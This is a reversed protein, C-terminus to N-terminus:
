IKFKNMLELCEKLSDIIHNPWTCDYDKAGYKLNTYASRIMSKLIVFDKKENKTM